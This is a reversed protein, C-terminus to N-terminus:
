ESHMPSDGIKWCHVPKKEDEGGYWARNNISIIPEGLDAVYAVSLYSCEPNYKRLIAVMEQAKKMLRTECQERTM